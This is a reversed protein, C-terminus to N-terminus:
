LVKTFWKYGKADLSNLSVFNKKLDPFHRVDSLTRVIGDFMKIKVIRIDTIKCPANNGMLVVGKSIIEYTSFWDRNLCMHFTCASDLIWDDCLKSSGNLLEGDNCDDEAVSAEGSNDLQKGKQNAIARKNKNQM